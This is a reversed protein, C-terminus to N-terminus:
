AQGNWNIRQSVYMIAALIVFLGISGVLLAYTELQILVFICLYLLSLLGGIALATKKIKLVGTMYCTILTVTMVSAISYAITFDTHESISILLSYFLCLATGILLYQFPHIRKKQLVEVFFSVVFTLVIILIAYKVTRMSKQYHQVPLLMDVGFESKKLDSEWRSGTIVQPYNRNLHMVKWGSTFGEDNVDRDDPLFAGTFSPTTCNSNLNVVTSKGIPTFRLKESGKLELKVMFEIVGDNLLTKIDAHASVGSSLVGTHRIGPNFVIRQGGWDMNVQESIGRLDSIGINLMADEFFIDNLAEQSLNSLEEPLVFSGTLEIPANYVVIEYLGRKLEQTKVEGRISLTEPLIQIVNTTKETKGDKGITTEIKPISLVPGLLTQAGSWKQSVEITADRATLERESILDAILVMPIMLFLTLVSILIAKIVMHYRTFFNADPINSSQQPCNVIAPEPYIKEQTTEFDQTVM